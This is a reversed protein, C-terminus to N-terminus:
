LGRPEDARRNGGRGAVRSDVVLRENLVRRPSYFPHFRNARGVGVAGSYTRRDPSFLLGAPAPCSNNLRVTEYAACASDWTLRVGETRPGPPTTPLIPHFMGGKRPNCDTISGPWRRPATRCPAWGKLLHTM